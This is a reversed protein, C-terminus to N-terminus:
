EFSNGFLAPVQPKAFIRLLLSHRAAEKEQEALASSDVRSGDPEVHSEPLKELPNRRVHLWLHCHLMHQFHHRQIM